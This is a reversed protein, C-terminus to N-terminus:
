EERRQPDGDFCTTVDAVRIRLLPREDCDYAFRKDAAVPRVPLRNSLMELKTKMITLDDAHNSIDAHASQFAATLGLYIERVFLNWVAPNNAVGGFRQDDM